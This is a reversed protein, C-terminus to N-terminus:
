FSGGFLDFPGLDIKHTRVYAELDDWGASLAAAHLDVLVTQAVISGTVRSTSSAILPFFEKLTKGLFGFAIQRGAEGISNVPTPPTMPAQTPAGAPMAPEPEFIRAAARAPSDGPQPVVGSLAGLAAGVAKGILAGVLVKEMIDGAGKNRGGAFGSAFGMAAGNITGSVAGAIAGAAVTGAGFSANCALAFGAAVAPGAVAAGFAASGGVAAGVLMGVLIDSADGGARAAAVGGIVGGAVVGVLPTATFVTSWTVSIGTGGLAITAPAATGWSLITVIIVLAIIAITALVGAVVKWAQRGTPDVYSTPNNRCYAYANWAAPDAADGVIPDPSLFRGVAPCYWRAGLLVIPPADLTAAPGTRPAPALGTAFTQPVAGVGSRDLVQGYPGYRLQLVVQGAGDTVAFVSGLHDHHLWTTRAAAPGGASAARRRALIMTGDTIQLMMGDDDISVLGDPSWVRSTVAGGGADTGTVESVALRGSHDYTYEHVTGSTLAVRRLRGSADVTHAGWPASAVHGRDDYTFHQTGLTTLCTAAEGGEGYAYTGVDSASLLNGADDYGYTWVQQAAGAGAVAPGLGEARVLRSLADYGYAWTQGPGTGTLTHVNGLVDYGYNVDRVTVRTGGAASPTNLQSRTLRGTLAEHENLREVGNAYRVRRPHNQVDYEIESVVDTIAM